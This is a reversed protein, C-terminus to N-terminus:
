KKELYEIGATVVDKVEHFLVSFAVVACGRTRLGRKWCEIFSPAEIKQQACTLMTDFGQGCASGLISSGIITGYKVYATEGYESNLLKILPDSL